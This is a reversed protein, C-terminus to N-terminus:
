DAVWICGKLLGIMRWEKLIALGISFVKVTEIRRKRPRNVSRSGACEGVYVRRAFRDNEMREAHDLWRLVGEYIREEIRKPVGCLERELANPVKDMLMTGLLGRLNDMQVARIRSRQKEKWYMTRSGYLKGILEIM